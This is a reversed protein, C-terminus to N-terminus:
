RISFHHFYQVLRVLMEVGESSGFLEKRHIDDKCLIAIIHLMDSQIGVEIEDGPGSASNDSYQRLTSVLQPIAGQDILDQIMSAVEEKTATGIPM